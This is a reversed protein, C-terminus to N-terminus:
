GSGGGGGGGGSSGGGFGGGGSSGSSGSGWGGGGSSWGGGGGGYGGDSAAILLFIIIAIGILVIILIMSGAGGADNKQAPPKQKAREAWPTKGLKDIIADVGAVVAEPRRNQLNLPRMVDNIVRKCEIDTLWGQIGYGTAIWAKKEPPPVVLLLVGNDEGKKGVHWRKWVNQAYDSPSEGALTPVILVAIEISTAKEYDRVKQELGGRVDAPLLNANDTVFGRYDPYDARALAPFLLFCIALLFTKM